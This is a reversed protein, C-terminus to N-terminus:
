PFLKPLLFLYANISKGYPILIIQLYFRFPEYVIAPPMAKPPFLSRTQTLNAELPPFVM